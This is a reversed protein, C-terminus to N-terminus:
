VHIMIRITRATAQAISAAFCRENPKFWALSLCQDNM